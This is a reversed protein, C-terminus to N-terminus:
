AAEQGCAHAELRRVAEDALERLAALDEESFSRAETGIVCLTGLPHGRRSILPVGAYCRIGERPVLPNDRVLPHETADEVVFPEGSHVAHACFSWEVPTGRTDALWGGLGHAAAFHQAEDLVVSVLSIPLDLQRAAEEALDTLLAGTDPVLLRLRAVEVLRERNALAHAPRDTM